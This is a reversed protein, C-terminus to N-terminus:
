HPTDMRPEPLRDLKSTLVRSLFDQSETLRELHSAILDVQNELQALRVEGTTDEVVRAAPRLSDLAQELGRIRGRARAYLFGLTGILTASFLFLMVFAEEPVM